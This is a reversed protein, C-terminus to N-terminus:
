RYERQKLNCMRTILKNHAELLALFSSNNNVKNDNMNVTSPTLTIKTAMSIPLLHDLEIFSQVKIESFTSPVTCM